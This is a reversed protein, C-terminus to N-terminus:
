YRGRRTEDDLGSLVVIAVEPAQTHVTTFTDFGTSDPLSLDLLVIEVDRLSLRELGTSLRDAHALEVEAHGGAADRLMERILRADGPNDEILLARIPTGLGSV